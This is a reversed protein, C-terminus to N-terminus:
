QVTLGGVLNTQFSDHGRRVAHPGISVPILTAPHSEGHGFFIDRAQLTLNAEMAEDGEAFTGGSFPGAPLKCSPVM